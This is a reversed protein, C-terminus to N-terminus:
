GFRGIQEDGVDLHRAHVAPLEGTIDPRHPRPDADQEHGAERGLGNLRGLKISRLLCEQGLWEFRVFQDASDRHQDAAELTLYLTAGVFDAIPMYAPWKEGM